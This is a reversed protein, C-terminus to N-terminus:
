FDWSRRKLVFTKRAEDPDLTMSEPTHQEARVDDRNEAEDAEADALDGIVAPMRTDVHKDCRTRAIVPGRLEGRAGCVDCIRYSMAQALTIMGQQVPSREGVYFRLGGFKEKVQVAVIQPMEQSETAHQLQECLTDILDFWGDGCAISLKREFIVPYRKYLEDVLEPSM